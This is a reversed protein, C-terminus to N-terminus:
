FAIKKIPKKVLNTAYITMDMKTTTESRQM